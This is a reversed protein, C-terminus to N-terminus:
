TSSTEEFQKLVINVLAISPHLRRADAACHKPLAGLGWGGRQYIAICGASACNNNNGVMTSEFSIKVPVADSQAFGLM